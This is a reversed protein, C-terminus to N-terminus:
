GLPKDWNLVRAGKDAAFACSSSGGGSRSGGSRRSVGSCNSRIHWALGSATSSSSAMPRKITMVGVPPSVLPRLERRVMRRRWQASWLDPQLTNLLEPPPAPWGVGARRGAPTWHSSAPWSNGPRLRSRASIQPIQPSAEVMAGQGPGPMAGGCRRVGTSEGSGRGCRGVGTPESSGPGCRSAEPPCKQGGM